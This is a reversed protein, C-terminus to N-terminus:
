GTVVLVETGEVDPEVEREVAGVERRETGARVAPDAERVHISTSYVFTSSGLVAAGSFM